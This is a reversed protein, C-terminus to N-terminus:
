RSRSVLRFSRSTIGVNPIQQKPSMIDCIQGSLNERPVTINWRSSRRTGGRFGENADKEMHVSIPPRLRFTGLSVNERLGECM